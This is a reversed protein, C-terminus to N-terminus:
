MGDDDMDNTQNVPKNVPKSSKDPTRDADRKQMHNDKPRDVRDQNMSRSNRPQDKFVEEVNDKFTADSWDPWNKDEFGKAKELTEKSVDLAFERDVASTQLRDMPVAFLKDGMGFVGGFSLIAYHVEGTRPDLILDKIEGINQSQSNRVNTGLVASVRRSWILGDDRPGAQSKVSSKDGYAQRDASASQHRDKDVNTKDVNSKDVRAKDANRHMDKGAQRSEAADTNNQNKNSQRGNKADGIAGDKTATNKPDVDLRQVNNRTYWNSRTNDDVGYYTDINQRYSVSATDPWKNKDFGPAKKLEAASINLYVRDKHDARHEISSWPIAFYKDGVGMVGGFSLVAYAIRNKEGDLVLDEITGIQKDNPGYVDKDLHQSARQPAIQDQASRLNTESIQRSQDVSDTRAVEAEAHVTVPLAAILLAMPIKMSINM